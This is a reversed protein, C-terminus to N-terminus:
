NTGDNKKWGINPSEGKGDGREGQTANRKKERKTLRPRTISIKKRILTSRRVSKSGGKM